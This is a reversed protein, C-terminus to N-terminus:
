NVIWGMDRETLIQERRGQKLADQIRQIIDEPEHGPYKLLLQAEDQVFKQHYFKDPWRFAALLQLGAETEGKGIRSLGLYFAANPEGPARALIDEFAAQAKGYDKMTFYTLGIRQRISLSDPEAALAENYRELALAYDGSALAMSGRVTATCGGALPLACLILLFLVANRMIAEENRSANERLHRSSDM